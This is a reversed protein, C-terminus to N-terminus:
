GAMKRHFITGVGGNLYDKESRTVDKPSVNELTYIWGMSKKQGPDGSKLSFAYGKGESPELM